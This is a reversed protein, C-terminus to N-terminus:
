LILEIQPTEEFIEEVFKKRFVSIKNDKNKVTFYYSDNDYVDFDLLIEVIEKEEFRIWDGKEKKDLYRELQNNDQLIIGKRM